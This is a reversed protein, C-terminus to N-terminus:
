TMLRHNESSIDQTVAEASPRRTKLPNMYQTPRNKSSHCAHMFCVLNAHAVSAFGGRQSGECASNRRMGMSRNRWFL